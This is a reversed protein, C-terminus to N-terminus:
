PSSPHDGDAEEPQLIKALQVFEHPTLSDCRRSLDVPLDSSNLDNLFPSLSNSLMKRRQTFARRAIIETKRLVEDSEVTSLPFLSVVASDVKPIPYFCAREVKFELKAKTRLQVYVSLSGYAKTAPSAALRQGFELQVMLLSCRIKALHPMIWMVLPSSINYPINGCIAKQGPTSAIWSALDFNLADDNVVKLKGQIKEEQAYERLKEAFRDDKELATVAIGEKLLVRTLIGNGPGIEIVSEVGQNKLYQVMKQCPWDDRLFVQSLSRKQVPHFSRRNM